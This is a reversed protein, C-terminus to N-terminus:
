TVFDRLASFKGHLWILNDGSKLFQHSCRVDHSGSPGNTKDTVLLMAYQIKHLQPVVFPLTRVLGTTSFTGLKQGIDITALRNGM